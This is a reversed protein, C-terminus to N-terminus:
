AVFKELHRIYISFFFFIDVKEAESAMDITANAGEKALKLTNQTM